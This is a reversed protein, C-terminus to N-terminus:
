QEAPGVIQMLIGFENFATWERRVRGNEIHWQTLGWLHVERDTPPGYPGHGRHHGVAGWRIALLYGDTPNGMWYLDDVRMALNPFMATLTLAHSRLQGLDRFARGTSMEVEVLPDYVESMAGFDRGNWIRDFASHVFGRVDDEIRPIAPRPPKSQGPLRLPEAGLFAPRSADLRAEAATRAAEVVNLGMQKLLQATDYAVHETHIENGRAVCNAMCLLRVPRGTPPGWRSWGTNTGIIITRHSTHFNTAADGAWVVEDAVLRIDPIAANTHVTDAVIKDRGYQLGVDDWVRCDHSYSDYIYGIDKEEWIRHTIRVIYDVIDLYDPDFGAMDRQPLHDPRQALFTDTGGRNYAALSVSFDQPMQNDRLTAFRPRTETAESPLVAGLDRTLRGDDAMRHEGAEECVYAACLAVLHLIKRIITM